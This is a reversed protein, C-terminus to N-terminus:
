RANNTIDSGYITKILLLTKINNTNFVDIFLFSVM